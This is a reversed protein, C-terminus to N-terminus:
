SGHWYGLLGTPGYLYFHRAMSPFDARERMTHFTLKADLDDEAQFELTKWDFTVDYKLVYNNM